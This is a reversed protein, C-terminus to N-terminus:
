SHIRTAEDYFAIPVHRGTSGDSPSWGASGRRPEGCLPSSRWAAPTTAAVKVKQLTVTGCWYDAVADM